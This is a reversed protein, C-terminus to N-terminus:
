AAVRVEGGRAIRRAMRKARRYPMLSSATVFGWGKAIVVAGERSRKVIVSVTTEKRARSKPGTGHNVGSGVPAMWAEFGMMITEEM